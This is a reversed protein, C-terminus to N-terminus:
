PVHNNNNTTVFRPLKLEKINIAFNLNAEGYGATTIGIVEGKMNILPGGSSGHTIEATTQIMSGSDRYGSIIGQSLTHSLGLPNSIVFVNSGVQGLSSSIPIYTNHYIGAVEFIIYDRKISKEIVSQVKHVSGDYTVILEKGVTTGQFVHYNSVALGSSNVFFGSGQYTDEDKSTYVLFVSKKYKMFLESLSLGTNNQIIETIEESESLILPLSSTSSRQAQDDRKQNEEDKGLLNSEDAM